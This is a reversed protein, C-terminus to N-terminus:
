TVFVAPVVIRPARASCIISLRPRFHLITPLRTVQDLLSHIERSQSRRWWTGYVWGDNEIDM